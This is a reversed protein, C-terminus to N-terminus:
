KSDEKLVRSIDRESRECKGNAASWGCSYASRVWPRVADRWAQKLADVAARYSTAKGEVEVTTRGAVFRRAYALRTAVGVITAGCTWGPGMFAEVEARAESAGYPTDHTAAAPTLDREAVAQYVIGNQVYQGAELPYDLDHLRVAKDAM